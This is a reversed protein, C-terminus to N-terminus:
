AKRVFGEPIRGFFQEMRRYLNDYFEKKMAELLKAKEPSVSAVKAQEMELKECFSQELAILSDLFEQAARTHELGDIFATELAKSRTSARVTGTSMQKMYHKHYEKFAKHDADFGGEDRDVLADYPGPKCFFKVVLPITDVLMFLLTLVLYTGMAFRGKADGAAQQAATAVATTGGAGGGPPPEVQSEFLGHLALTQTLIDKRPEARVAEIKTQEEKSIASLEDQARNLDVLLTDIQQKITERLQNQQDVFQAAQDTQIRRKLEVLRKDEEALKASEIILQNQFEETAIKEAERIQSEVLNKETTLHEMVGALRKVEERRWALQDEQISKARPGLGIIGSRQGNVEKEFEEQWFSQDEQIKTYQPGLEEAQQSLDTMRAQYAQTAKAISDQLQKQQEATLGAGTNDEDTTEKTLFEAQFTENWKERQAAISSQISTINGSIKVKQEEFQSRIGRIEEEREREVVSSITDRFLLLVLPHAITLGMLMAVVFRLAFQGLKRTLSMYSRYSALLARDITLIIFGWIAAVSFIVFPNTTLTSIAYASAIFAFLAPVLVTLGFAVYKRQEWGPCQELTESGAGALWFFVHKMKSSNM